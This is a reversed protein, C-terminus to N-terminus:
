NKGDYNKEEDNRTDGLDDVNDTLTAVGGGFFVTSHAPTRAVCLLFCVLGIESFV